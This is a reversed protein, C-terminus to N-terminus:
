PEDLNTLRAKARRPALMVGVARRRSRDGKAAPRQDYADFPGRHAMGEPDCGGHREKRVCPRRQRQQERAAAMIQM